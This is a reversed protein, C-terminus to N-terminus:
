TSNFEVNDLFIRAIGPATYPHRIVIFHAARTLRDMVMLIANYGEYKPLGQVFDM